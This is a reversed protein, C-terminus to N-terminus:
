SLYNQFFKPIHTKCVIAPLYQDLDNWNCSRNGDTSHRLISWILEADLLVEESSSNQPAQNEIEFENKM